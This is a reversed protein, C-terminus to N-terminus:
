KPFSLSLLSWNRGSAKSCFGSKLSCMEPFRKLTLQAHLMAHRCTLADIDLSPSVIPQKNEKCMLHGIQVGVPFPCCPLCPRSHCRERALYPVHHMLRALLLATISHLLGKVPLGHDLAIAVVVLAITTDKQLLVILSLICIFCRGVPVSFSTALPSFVKLLSCTHRIPLAQDRVPLVPSDGKCGM